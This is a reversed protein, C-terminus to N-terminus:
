RQGLRMRVIEYPLGGLHAKYEEDGRLFDFTERGRRIADEIAYAKSLLGVALHSFAPEFGSNYLFTTTANEFMLVMAVAVGDLELTSVRALGSAGFRAGLDRFFSEMQPTLFEGKDAHSARMMAFLQEMRMEVAAGGEASSFSVIGASQLNRLKRRLEHRDRKDLAAIYAEFSGALTARPAVAEAEEDVIWGFAEAGAGLGARWGDDAIGWFSVAGTLDEILWEILGTAVAEEEGPLCLLGGYDSVNPDGLQRPGGSQMDLQAVGILEAGKRFSLFLPNASAGFHRLWIAFWDPHQFVTAEAVTGYLALWEPRLTTFDESTILPAETRQHRPASEITAAGTPNERPNQSPNESTTAM